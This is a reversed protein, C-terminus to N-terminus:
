PAVQACALLPHPTTGFLARFFEEKRRLSDRLAASRGSVNDLDKAAKTSSRM